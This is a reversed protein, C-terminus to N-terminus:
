IFDGQEEFDYAYASGLDEWPESWVIKIGRADAARKIQELEERPRYQVHEGGELVGCSLEIHKLAPLCREDAFASLLYSTSFPMWDTQILEHLTPPLLHLIRLHELHSLLPERRGLLSFFAASHLSPISSVSTLLLRLDEKGLHSLPTTLSLSTLNTYHTFDFSQGLGFGVLSLHNLSGCSTGILQALLDVDLHDGVSFSELHLQAPKPLLDIGDLSYIQLDRLAPVRELMEAFRTPHWTYEGELGLSLLKGQLGM